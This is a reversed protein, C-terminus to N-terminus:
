DIRQFRVIAGDEGDERLEMLRGELGVFQWCADAAPDDGFRYLTIAMGEGQAPADACSPGVTMMLADALEDGAFELWDMGLIELTAPGADGEQRWRGQMARLRDQYPDDPRLTLSNLV